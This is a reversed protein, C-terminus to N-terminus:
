LFSIMRLKLLKLTLKKALLEKSDGINESRQTKAAAYVHEGDTEVSDKSEPRSWSYDGM